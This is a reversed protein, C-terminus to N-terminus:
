RTEMGLAAIQQNSEALKAEQLQMQKTIAGENPVRLTSRSTDLQQTLAALLLSSADYSTSPQSCWYESALVHIM